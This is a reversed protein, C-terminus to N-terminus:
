IFLYNSFSIKSFARSHSHITMRQLSPQASSNKKKVMGQLSGVRGERHWERARLLEAFFFVWNNKQAFRTDAIKIDELKEGSLMCRGRLQPLAAPLAHSGRPVPILGVRTGRGGRHHRDGSLLLTMKLVKTFHQM